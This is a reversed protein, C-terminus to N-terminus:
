KTGGEGTATAHGDAQFCHHKQCWCVCGCRETASANLASQAIDQVAFVSPRSSMGMSVGNHAIVSVIEQLAERYLANEAKLKKNEDSTIRALQINTEAGKNIAVLEKKTMTLQSEDSYIRTQLDRILSRLGTESLHDLSGGVKNIDTM